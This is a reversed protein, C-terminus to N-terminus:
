SGSRRGTIELVGAVQDIGPIRCLGGDLAVLARGFRGYVRRLGEPMGTLNKPLLNARRVRGVSFGTGELLRSIEAVDFRRPHAYGLELRRIVAEQWAYRQPLQYVLFLGGPRLVRAIEQMSRVENGPASFEDVHELVGCSLVADFSRDPFPLATPHTSRVVDLGHCLPVDPLTATAPDGIDFSTVRLGRRKLLYTMQGYGCGWDLLDGAPVQRAIDDAIRIYNWLSIPQDLHICQECGLARGARASALLFEFDERARRGADPSGPTPISV